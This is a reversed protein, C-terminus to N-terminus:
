SGLFFRVNFQQIKNTKKKKSSFEVTQSYSEVGYKEICTNKAQERNNFNENGYKEFKTKHVKDIWEDTQSNWQGNFREFM